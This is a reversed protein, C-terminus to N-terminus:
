DLELRALGRKKSNEFMTRLFLFSLSIYLINLVLSIILNHVPIIGTSIITRVSEFVYTTPLSKSIIQAWHPLVKLPFFVTSFPAFLWILAWTLSQARQGLLFLLGSTFFGISLGSILLLLLIPLIIWGISFINIGYIMYVLFVGFFLTFFSKIIGLFTGALLWESFLLPTSFLNILNKSWLEELLNIVIEMHARSAIQWFILCSLLMFSYDQQGNQMWVATFGFLVIDLAPYYFQDTLRMFDRFMMLVHRKMIAKIRYLEM